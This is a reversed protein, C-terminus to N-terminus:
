PIPTVYERVLDPFIRTPDADPAADVAGLPLRMVVRDRLGRGPEPVWRTAVSYNPLIAAVSELVVKLVAREGRALPLDIAAVLLRDLWATPVVDPVRPRSTSREPDSVPAVEVRSGGEREATDMQRKAM